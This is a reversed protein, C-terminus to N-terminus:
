KEERFIKLSIYLISFYILSYLIGIIPAFTPGTDSSVNELAKRQDDTIENGSFFGDENLDFSDLNNRLSIKTIIVLVIISFYFFVSSYFAIRSNSLKIKSRSKYFYLLWLIFTLQIFLFIIIKKM